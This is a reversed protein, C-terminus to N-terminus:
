DKWRVISHVRGARIWAGDGGRRNGNGCLQRRRGAAAVGAAVFADDSVQEKWQEHQRLARGDM